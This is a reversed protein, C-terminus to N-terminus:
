APVTDNTDSEASNVGLVMSVGSWRALSTNATRMRTSSGVPVRLAPMGTSTRSDHGGLGRRGERDLGDAEMAAEAVDDGDVAHIEAHRLAGHEPQEPGVARALRRQDPHEGRHQAGVRAVGADLPEGDGPLRVQHRRLDPVHRLLEGQVRVQADGLVDLEERPQAAHGLGLTALARQLQQGAHAERAEEAPLGPAEGAAHLLLQEQRRRQHV